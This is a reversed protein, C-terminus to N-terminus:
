KGGDDRENRAVRSDQDQAGDDQINSAAEDNQAFRLATASDLLGASDLATASGM